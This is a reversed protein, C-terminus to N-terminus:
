GGTSATSMTASTVSCYSPTTVSAVSPQDMSRQPTRMSTTICGAADAASMSRTQSSIVRCPKLGRGNGPSTRVAMPSSPSSLLASQDYMSASGPTALTSMTCFGYRCAERSHFGSVLMTSIAGPTRKPPLSIAMTAPGQETSLSSCITVDARATRAAPAVANRPPAKLGREDGYAKWPSPL